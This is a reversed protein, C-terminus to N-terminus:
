CFTLFLCEKLKDCEIQSSSKDKQTKNSPKKPLHLIMKLTLKDISLHALTGTGDSCLDGMGMHTFLRQIKRM